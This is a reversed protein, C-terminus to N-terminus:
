DGRKLAPTKPKASSGSNVPVTVPAPEPKVPIGDFFQDLERDSFAQPTLLSNRREQDTLAAVQSPMTVIHPTLFIMLETKTNQKVKRQFLLGILPIDGLLPVKRTSDIKKNEMLGGIIVTKGDPTVVVTEASRNNIIPANVSSNTGTSITTGENALSSITPAVIMEILGDNSIFPTVRLIIGVDEYSITNNISGNLGSIQSGTIIPIRQGVMIVAQQNNRAMISPRSLVETKGAESIARLTAQFDNGLVQYMGGAGLPMSSAGLAALSPLTQASMQTSGVKKTISADIGIDSNKGYTVELFVVKILVQPKPKDLNTIIQSIAASTEDDTIVIIRRTEPDSSIMAEGIQGNPAYSGSSSRASSGSRAGGGGGGGTRGGTGGGTRGGQGGGSRQAWLDTPLGLCFGLLLIAVVKWKSFTKIM